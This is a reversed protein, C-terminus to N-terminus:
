YGAQGLQHVCIPDQTAFQSSPQSGILFMVMMSGDGFLDVRSYIRGRISGGEFLDLPQIALEPGGMWGTASGGDAMSRKRAVAGTAPNM